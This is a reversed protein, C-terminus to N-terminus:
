HRLQNNHTKRWVDIHISWQHLCHSHSTKDGGRMIEWISEYQQLKIAWGDMKRRHSVIKKNIWIKERMKELLKGGV